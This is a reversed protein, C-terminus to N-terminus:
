PPPAAPHQDAPQRREHAGEDGDRGADELHSERRVGHQGQDAGRDPCKRDGTGAVYQARAVLTEVVVKAVGFVRDNCANEHQRRIEDISEHVGSFHSATVIGSTSTWEWYAGSLGCSSARKRSTRSVPSNM